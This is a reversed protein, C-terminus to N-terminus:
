IALYTDLDKINAGRQLAQNAVQNVINTYEAYGLDFLGQIDSKLLAEEADIKNDAYLKQMQAIIIAEVRKQKDNKQFDGEQIGFFIKLLRMNTLEEETLIGDGLCLDAYDLIVDLTREKIDTIRRIGKKALLENRALSNMKDDLILQLLATITDDYQRQRLLESVAQQLPTM